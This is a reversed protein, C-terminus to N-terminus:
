ASIRRGHACRILAGDKAPTIPALDRQAIWKYQNYRTVTSLKM